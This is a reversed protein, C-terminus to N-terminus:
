HPNKLPFLQYKELEKKKAEVIETLVQITHARDKHPLFKMGNKKMRELFDIEKEKLFIFLSLEEFIEKLTKEKESM